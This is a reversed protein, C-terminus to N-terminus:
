IYKFISLCLISWEFEGVFWYKWPVLVVSFLRINWGDYLMVQLLNVFGAFRYENGNLGLNGDAIWVDDTEGEYSLM